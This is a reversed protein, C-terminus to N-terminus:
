HCPGRLRCQLGTTAGGTSSALDPRQLHHRLVKQGFHRNSEAPSEDCAQSALSGTSLWASLRCDQTHCHGSVVGGVCCVNSECFTPALLVRGDSKRHGCQAQSQESNLLNRIRYFDLSPPYWHRLRRFCVLRPVASWLGSCISEDRLRLIVISLLQQFSTLIGCSGKAVRRTSVDAVPPHLPHM